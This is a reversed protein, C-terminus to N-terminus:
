GCLLMYDELQDPNDASRQVEYPIRHDIQLYRGEYQINCVACRYDHQKLCSIKSPKPFNDAGELNLSGFNFEVDGFRYAAITRGQANKVKFAEMPIGQERVDRIARPPHKYGYTSKLEETTIHGHALIHDIVVRARKGRITKLYDLFEPPFPVTM